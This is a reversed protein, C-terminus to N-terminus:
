PSIRSRLIGMNETFSQSWTTFLDYVTRPSSLAPFNLKSVLVLETFRWLPEKLYSHSAPILDGTEDPDSAPLENSASTHMLDVAPISINDSGRVHSGFDGWADRLDNPSM